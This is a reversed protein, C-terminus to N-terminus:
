RVATRRRNRKLGGAPIAWVPSTLKWHCARQRVPPLSASLGEDLEDQARHEPLQLMHPVRLPHSARPPCCCRPMVSARSGGDQSLVPRGQHGWARFKLSGKWGGLGRSSGPGLLALLEIASPQTRQCEPSQVERGQQIKGCGAM